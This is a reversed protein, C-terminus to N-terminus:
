EPLGAKRLLELFRAVNVPDKYPTIRRAYNLTFGPSTQSIAAIESEAELQRNLACLSAALVARGVTFDPLASALREPPPIAHDFKGMTFYARGEALLYMPPYHRDLRMATAIAELGDQPRGGFCYANSLGLQVFASSPSLRLARELEAIAQDHHGLGFEVNGLAALSWVDNSDLSVAKLAHKRALLLEAVPDDSWGNTSSQFLAYALFGHGMAFNPDLAIAAEAERRAKSNDAQTYYRYHTRSRLTHEYADLSSPEKRLAREMDSAVLHAGAIGAVGQAIENQLAFLDDAVRDYREAWLQQGTQGEILQVTIRIRDGGKRVSGEMVYRAGIESAVLKADGVRGKYRTTANRGIVSLGPFHSLETVIDETIGDAFYEQEPDGSMNGFPLVAISPKDSLTQTKTALTKAIALSSDDVLRYLRVPDVVNKVQQEGQDEFNADIKGKVQRFADGSLCVGGPEALGELRAAVNVGDGYIDDDDAIIDGLNVGIRYQLRTDEGHDAETEAVKGQWTVACNVADVISAFEILLGDGMLKVIRGSHAAVIPELLEERQAKIRRLTGVEDAGMLRTYGVVDAVLIAALRREV